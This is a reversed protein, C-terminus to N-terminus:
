RSGLGHEAAEPTQAFLLRAHARCPRRAMRPHWRHPSCWGAMPACCRATSGGAMPVLWSRWRVPSTRRRVWGSWPNMKALREILEPSKWGPVSRHRDPGAGRRERHHQARAAGASSRAWPRWRRSAPRMCATTRLRTGVVSTSLTIIRGGDRVRRASERLVNFAGKLNIGIVREFLADDTDPSRRWSYYAPATSWWTSAASVPRSPTSCSTSRRRIPWMPRCRSPRRAPQTSNPRWPKPTTAAARMTSRSRTTMPALRRSIAAGIGRSGGTVLAVSRAPSLTMTAEVPARRLPAPGHERWRM